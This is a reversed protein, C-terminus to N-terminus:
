PYFSQRKLSQTVNYQQTTSVTRESVVTFLSNFMPHTETIGNCDNFCSTHYTEHELKLPFLVTPLKVLVIEVVVTTEIHCGITSFIFILDAQIGRDETRQGRDETKQGRDETRQGRDETMVHPPYQPIHLTYHNTHLTYHTTHM